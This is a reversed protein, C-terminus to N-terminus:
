VQVFGVLGEHTIKYVEPQSFLNGLFPAGGQDCVCGHGMLVHAAVVFVPVQYVFQKPGQSETQSVGTLSGLWGGICCIM